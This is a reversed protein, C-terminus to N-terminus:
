LVFYYGNNISNNRVYNPMDHRHNIGSYHAILAPRDLEPNRPISGRHMLRSHWILVDGKKGLFQKVGLGTRVREAEMAASVWEQSKYPWLPDSSSGPPMFSLVKDRSLTPWKHSGPVYEFPGSDPHIDGLAIWVAAYHDRVFSPSLYSDQHWHRGTSKWDCLNLHLGAPEDILSELIVSLIWHCCIERIETIRMYPTGTEFSKGDRIYRDRYADILDGPILGKLIACGESIWEQQFGTLRGFDPPAARDLWPLEDDPINESLEAFVPSPDAM